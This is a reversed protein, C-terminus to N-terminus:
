NGARRTEVAKRVHVIEHENSETLRRSKRSNPALMPIARRDAHYMGAFDAWADMLERRREIMTGRLYAAEVKDGKVHALAAEVLENPFNTQESAWTKFTARFGHTTIDSDELKPDKYRPLGMSNRDDSMREITKLLAMNSLGAGSLGPFVYEGNRANMRSLVSMAINSLPVRHERKAKMRVAPVRWIRDAWDIEEARMGIVEGTRSATLILFELAAAGVGEHRRLDHIFAPLQSYPLSPHHQVKWVKAKPPLLKSLHGRWRAPNEGDRYGKVRAWDLVNEIRGRVRSATETKTKWIPELAAAVLTTDISRVPLSGLIPSAYSKLTSRWQAVHKDNGWAAAHMEIYKEAAEDFTIEPTRSASAVKAQERRADIPDLGSRLLSRATSAAQRAEALSVDPFPGLGMYRSKGGRMFRFVWSRSEGKVQFYLGRGDGYLGPGKGKLGTAALKDITKAM